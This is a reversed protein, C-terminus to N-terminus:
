NFTTTIMTAIITVTFSDVWCSVSDCIALHQVISLRWFCKISRWLYRGSRRGVSNYDQCRNCGTDEDAKRQIYWRFVGIVIITTRSQVPNILCANIGEGVVLNVVFSVLSDILQEIDFASIFQCIWCGWCNALCLSSRSSNPKLESAVTTM